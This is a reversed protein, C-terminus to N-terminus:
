RKRTAFIAADPVRDKGERRGNRGLCDSIPSEFAYGLVSAGHAKAVEIVAARDEVMPNTNDVVVSRGERLAAEILVMQRRQPRRNGRFNDKSVHVHTVAFRERYFTSKGSGQLGVFLIVEM